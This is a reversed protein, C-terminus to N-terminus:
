WGPLGLQQAQKKVDEDYRAAGDEAKSIGSGVEVTIKELNPGKVPSLFELAPTSKGASVIDQMQTVALPSDAPITCGQIVYPGTPAVAASQVDCGEPSVAFAIFKKAADLKDGETTKPIYLGAPMWLTMGNKSADDGPQGFFGINQANAKDLGTLNGIAFTLMPYQAGKGSSLDALAQDLKISAFDENLYGADFVEQLRQFGKLAPDDVYKANPDNATYQSAWDPNVAAVNHYDALVFLQSTWTDGYSQIVPAIGAAKIKANNAMFEDWTTPITLGLKDYITKSYLIGGGMAPGLPGAYVQGDVSAADKFGQDVTSQWPEDTQAVLNTAPDLAQLLSGVNYWFVDSMEGTSLKTKVLNDGDGGGPRTEVTVTINPYKKEFAAVLADTILKTQEGNDVLYSIEVPAASAPGSESSAPDGSSSGCASLLLAGAALAAAGLAGRGKMGFKM